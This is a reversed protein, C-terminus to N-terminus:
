ITRGIQDIVGEGSRREVVGSIIERTGLKWAIFNRRIQDIRNTLLNYIQIRIRVARALARVLQVVKRRRARALNQIVLQIRSHIPFLVRHMAQEHAPRVAEALILSHWAEETGGAILSDILGIISELDYQVIRYRRASGPHDVSVDTIAAPFFRV